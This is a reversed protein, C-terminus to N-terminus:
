DTMTLTLPCNPSDQRFPLAPAANPLSADEWPLEATYFTSRSQATQATLFESVSDLDAESMLSPPSISVDSVTLRITPRPFLCEERETNHHGNAPVRPEAAHAKPTGMMNKSGSEINAKAGNNSHQQHESYDTPRPKFNGLGDSNRDREVISCLSGHYRTARVRAAYPHPM